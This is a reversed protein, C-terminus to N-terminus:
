RIVKIYFGIVFVREQVNTLDQLTLDPASFSTFNGASFQSDYFMPEPGSINGPASLTSVNVGLKAAV